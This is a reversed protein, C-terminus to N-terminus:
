LLPWQVMDQIMVTKVMGAVSGQGSDNCNEGCGASLETM